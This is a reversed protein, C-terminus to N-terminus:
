DVDLVGRRFIAVLDRHQEHLRRGLWGAYSAISRDLLELAESAHAHRSALLHSRLQWQANSIQAAPFPVGVTMPPDVAAGVRNEHTLVCVVRIDRSCAGLQHNLAVSCDPEGVPARESRNSPGFIKSWGCRAQPHRTFAAPPTHPTAWSTTTTAAELGRRGCRTSATAWRTRWAPTARVSTKDRGVGS